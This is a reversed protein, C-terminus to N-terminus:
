RYDYVLVHKYDGIVLKFHIMECNNYIQKLMNKPPKGYNFKKRNKDWEAVKYETMDDIIHSIYMFVMNHFKYIVYVIKYKTYPVNVIYKKIYKMKTMDFCLIPEIIDNSFIIFPIKINALFHTYNSSVMTFGRPINIKHFYINLKVTIRVICDDIWRNDHLKYFGCLGESILRMIISSNKINYYLESKTSNIMFYDDYEIQDNYTIELRNNIYQISVVINQTQKNFHSLDYIDPISM